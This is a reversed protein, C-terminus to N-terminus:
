SALVDCPIKDGTKVPEEPLEIKQCLKIMRVVRNKLSTIRSEDYTTDIDATVIAHESLWDCKVLDAILPDAFSPLDFDEGKFLGGIMRSIYGLDKVQFVTVPEYPIGAHDLEDKKHQHIGWSLTRDDHHHCPRGNALILPRLEPHVKNYIDIKKMDWLPASFPVGRFDASTLKGFAKPFNLFAQYEEELYDWPCSTGEFSDEKIWGIWVGPYSGRLIDNRRIMLMGLATNFQQVVATAGKPNRDECGELLTKKYYTIEGICGRGKDVYLAKAVALIQRMRHFEVAQTLPNNTVNIYCPWVNYGEELAKQLLYTSEVGCSFAIRVDRAM